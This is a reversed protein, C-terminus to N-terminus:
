LAGKQTFNFPQFQQKRGAAQVRVVVVIGPEDGFFTDTVSVELVKDIRRERSLNDTILHRLEDLNAKTNLKKVFRGVGVGYNPNLRYEGPAVSLRRMIARRLNDSGSVEQYDGKSTVLLDDTFMLDTGYVGQDVDELGAVSGSTPYTPWTM